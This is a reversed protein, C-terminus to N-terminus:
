TDVMESLIYLQRHRNRDDEIYTINYIRNRCVIRVHRSDAEAVDKYYHTRWRVPVYPRLSEAAIVEKGMTPIKEAWMTRMPLWSGSANTQVEIRETMAGISATAQYQRRTAYRTERDSAVRM